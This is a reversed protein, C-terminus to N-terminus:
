RVNASVGGNTSASSKALKALLKMLGSGNQMSIRPNPPLRLAWLRTKGSRRITEFHRNNLTNFFSHVLVGRVFFDDHKARHRIELYSLSKQPYIVKM